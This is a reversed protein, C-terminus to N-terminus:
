ITGNTGELARKKKAYENQYANWKDRNKERWRKHNAKQRAKYDEDNKHKEYYRRNYERQFKQFKPNPPYYKLTGNLISKAYARRRYEKVKDPNNERWRKQYAAREEKTQAM